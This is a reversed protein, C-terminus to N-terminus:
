VGAASAALLGGSANPSSAALSDLDLALSNTGPILSANLPRGGNLASLLLLANAEGNPARATGGASAARAPNVYLHALAGSPAVAALKAYAAAGALAPAGLSTDIVGHLAAESGLVVLDKVMAFAV